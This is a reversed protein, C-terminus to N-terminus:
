VTTHAGSVQVAVSIVGMGVRGRGTERGYWGMGVFSGNWGRGDGCFYLEMGVRERLIAYKNLLFELM